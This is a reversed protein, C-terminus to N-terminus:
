TLNIINLYKKLPKKASKKFTCTKRLKLAPNIHPKIFKCKTM